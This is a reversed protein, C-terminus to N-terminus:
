LQKVLIACSSGKWIYDLEIVMTYGNRQYFSLTKLFNPDNDRPGVTKAMIFRRNRAKSDKEAEALLAKGIGLGHSKPVVGMVWIQATFENNMTIMIFGLAKDSNDLAVFTKFEPQRANDVYDVIASEFGFYDPLQRLIQGVLKAQDARLEAIRFKTVM